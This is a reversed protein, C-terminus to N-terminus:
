LSEPLTTPIHSLVDLHYTFGFGDPAQSLVPSDGNTALSGSQEPALLFPPLPHFLAPHHQHPDWLYPNIVPPNSGLGSPTLRDELVDVQPRFTARRRVM